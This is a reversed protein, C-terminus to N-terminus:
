ELELAVYQSVQPLHVEVADKQPVVEVNQLLPADVTTAKVKRFPGAVRVSSADPGRNAYFLLHVVAHKRDPAETYFSGTAGGNWFRVLDYRHSVLVVSDNAMVYPDDPVANALAIRGKGVPRLSYRPHSDGKLLTGSVAGWKPGAILMGGARVFSLILERLEPAPPEADAYIVARLGEFSSAAVASKLLIRYHQGTRALLNLLEQNFFENEGSFDSVVGAVAVPAYAAWEKHAAFFGAAGTIKKWTDLAQENGTALATALPDDLTVIWRGGHAGSDAIAILYSGAALRVGPQAPSASVWIASEPHLAAALRINWGNSDVWPAGTPGASAESGAGRTSHVGAWEGKIVTVGPPSSDPAAIQFGLQRARSRVAEFDLAPDILLYDIATGQLLSLASADKWAAPWRMPTWPAKM